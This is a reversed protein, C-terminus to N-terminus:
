FNIIIRRIINVLALVAISVLMYDVFSVNIVNVMFSVIIDIM